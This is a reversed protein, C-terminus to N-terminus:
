MKGRELRVYRFHILRRSHFVVAHRSVNQVSLATQQAVQVFKQFGHSWNCVSGLFASNRITRIGTPDAPAPIGLLEGSGSPMIAIGDHFVRHRTPYTVVGLPLSSRM